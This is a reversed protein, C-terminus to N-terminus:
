DSNKNDLFFALRKPPANSNDSLGKIESLRDLARLKDHLKIQLVTDAGRKAVTIEKIAARVHPALEQLSAINLGEIVYNGGGTQTIEVPGDEVKLLELPDFFAISAYERIIRDGTIDLKQAIMERYHELLNAVHERSLIDRAARSRKEKWAPRTDDFIYGARRHAEHLTVGQARFRAILDEKKSCKSRLHQLSSM